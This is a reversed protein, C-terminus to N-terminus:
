KTFKRGLNSSYPTAPNGVGLFYPKQLLPSPCAVAPLMHAEAVNGAAGSVPFMDSEAGVRAAAGVAPGAAGVGCGAVGGQAAADVVSGATGVGSGVAGGPGATGVAFGACVGDVGSGVGAAAAAAPGASVGATGAGVGVAYGFAAQPCGAAAAAAAAAAAVAGIGAGPGAAAGAIGTGPVVDNGVDAVLGVGAGSGGAAGTEAGPLPTVSTSNEMDTPDVLEPTPPIELLLQGALPAVAAEPYLCINTEVVAVGTGPPVYFLVCFSRMM